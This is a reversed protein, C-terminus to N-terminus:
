RLAGSRLRKPRRWGPRLSWVAFLGATGLVALLTVIVSSSVDVPQGSAGVSSRPAATGLLDGANAIAKGLASAANTGASVLGARVTGHGHRKAPAGLAHKV